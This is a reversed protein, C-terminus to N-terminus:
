HSDDLGVLARLLDLELNEPIERPAMGVIGGGFSHAEVSGSVQCSIISTGSSSMGGVIGGVKDNGKITSNSSVSCNIIEGGSYFVAAIGGVVDGTSEIHANELHLNKITM